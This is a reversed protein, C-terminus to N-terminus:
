VTLVLGRNRLYTLYMPADSKLHVVRQLVPSYKAFRHQQAAVRKGGIVTANWVIVMLEIVDDVNLEIGRLKYAQERVLQSSLERILSPVMSGNAYRHFQLVTYTTGYAMGKEGLVVFFPGASAAYDERFRFVPFTAMIVKVAV